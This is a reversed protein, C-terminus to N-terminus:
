LINRPEEEHTSYISSAIPRRGELTALADERNIERTDRQRMDPVLDPIEDDIFEYRSPGTDSGYPKGIGRTRDYM